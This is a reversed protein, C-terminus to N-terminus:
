VSGPVYSMGTRTFRGDPIVRSPCTDTCSVKSSFVTPSEFVWFSPYCSIPNWLLKRHFDLHPVILLSYLHNVSFDPDLIRCPEMQSWCSQETLRRHLKVT